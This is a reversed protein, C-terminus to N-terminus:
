SWASGAVRRSPELWNGDKQGQLRPESKDIRELCLECDLEHGDLMSNHRAQELPARGKPNECHFIFIFLCSIGDSREPVLCVEVQLDPLSCTNVPASALSVTTMRHLEYM